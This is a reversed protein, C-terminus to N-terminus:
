ARAEITRFQPETMTGGAAAEIPLARGAACIPLFADSPGEARLHAESALLAVPVFDPDAM